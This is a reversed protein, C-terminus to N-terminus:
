EQCGCSTRLRKLPFSGYGLGALAASLRASANAMLVVLVSYICLSQDCQLYFRRTLM